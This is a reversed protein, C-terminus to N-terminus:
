CKKIFCEGKTLCKLSITFFEEWYERNGHTKGHCKKCLPVFLPKVDNCCLMKDYNVHHVDLKQGLESEDIGCVYCCRGFFIRVREKLDEDFKECYPEWSIGGQWNQASEGTLTKMRESQRRLYEYNEKTRGKMKEARQQIYGYNEKTRGRLADAQRKIGSHNEKTRGKIKESHKRVGEHNEKTRGRMKESQSKVSENNEKTRGTLTKSIKRKTEESLLPVGPYKERYEKVSLNHTKLHLDNIFDLEKGCVMCKVKESM